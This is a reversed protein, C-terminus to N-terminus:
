DDSALLVPPAPPHKLYAVARLFFEPNDRAFGLMNNCSSCLCGRICNGCSGYRDCCKHDHDIALAKAAGTAIQCIACKGGQADIIEFYQKQTINYHLRIRSAHAQKRSCPKCRSRIKGSKDKPFFKLMRYKECGACWSKGEPSDKTMQRNFSLETDLNVPGGSNVHRRCQSCLTEGNRKPAFEKRKCRTCMVKPRHGPAYAYKARGGCGCACEAVCNSNYDGTRASRGCGCACDKDAPRRNRPTPSIAAM